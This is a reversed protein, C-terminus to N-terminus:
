KSLVLINSIYSKFSWFGRAWQAALMNKWLGKDKAMENWRASVRAVLGLELPNLFMFIALLVEDPLKNVPAMEERVENSCNPNLVETETLLENSSDLDLEALKRCYSNEREFVELEKIEFYLRRSEM